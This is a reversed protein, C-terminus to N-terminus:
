EITLDLRKMQDFAEFTKPREVPTCLSKTLPPWPFYTCLYFRVQSYLLQEHWFGTDMFQATSPPHTSIPDFLKCAPFPITPHTFTTLRHWDFCGYFIPHVDKPLKLDDESLLVKSINNTQKPFRTCTLADGSVRCFNFHRTSDRPKFRVSPFFVQGGKHPFQTSYCHLPLSALCAVTTYDLELDGNQTMFIIM